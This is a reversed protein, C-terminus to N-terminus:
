EASITKNIKAHPNSLYNRVADDDNENSNHDVGKLHASSWQDSQALLINEYLRM